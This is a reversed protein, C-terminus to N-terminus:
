EGRKPRARSDAEGATQAIAAVAVLARFGVVRRVAEVVSCATVAAGVCLCVFGAVVATRWGVAERRCSQVGTEAVDRDFEVRLPDRVCDLVEDPQRGALLGPRVGFGALFDLAFRQVVVHEKV